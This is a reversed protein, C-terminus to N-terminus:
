SIIIKKFNQNKLNTSFPVLIVVFVKVYEHIIKADQGHNSIEPFIPNYIHTYLHRSMIDIEILWIWEHNGILNRIFM